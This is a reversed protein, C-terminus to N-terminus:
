RPCRTCSGRDPIQRSVAGVFIAEIRDGRQKGNYASKAVVFMYLIEEVGVRETSKIREGQRLHVESDLAYVTSYIVELAHRYEAIEVGV